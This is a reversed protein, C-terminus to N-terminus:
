GHRPAWTEILKEIENDLWRPAIRGDRKQLRVIMEHLQNENLESLRRLVDPRALVCVGQRLSYALAEITSAAATM